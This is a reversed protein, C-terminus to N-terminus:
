GELSEALRTELEHAPLMAFDKAVEEAVLRAVQDPMAARLDGLFQAPAVVILRDFAHGKRADELLQAVEHAFRAKAHRKPDTPPEMGHRGQGGSDFTRGPRDSGIEASSLNEGSLERKLDSTLPGGPSTEFVRARTADAVLIWTTQKAM